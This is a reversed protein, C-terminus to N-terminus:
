SNSTLSRTQWNRGTSSCWGDAWSFFRGFGDLLLDRAFYALQQTHNEAATALRSM